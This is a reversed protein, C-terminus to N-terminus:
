GYVLREVGAPDLTMRYEDPQREKLIGFIM